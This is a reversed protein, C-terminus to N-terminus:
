LVEAPVTVTVTAPVLATYTTDGDDLVFSDEYIVEYSRTPLTPNDWNIRENGHTDLLCRRVQAQQESDAVATGLMFFGGVMCGLILAAATRGAWRGFVVRRLRHRAAAMYVAVGMRGLMGLPVPAPELRRLQAETRQLDAGEASAAQMAALLRGELARPLRAAKMGNLETHTASM